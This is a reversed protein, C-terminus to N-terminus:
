NFISIDRLLFTEYPILTGGDFLVIFRFFGFACILLTVVQVTFRYKGQNIVCIYGLIIAYTLIFYDKVRTLIEFGSFLTMIPLLCLFLKLIFEVNENVEILKEYFVIVLLMILFYEFIHFLSLGSGSIGLFLSEAKSKSADSEFFNIIFSLPQLLPINLRSILLTPIFICNFIILLKKTLKVRAIPYLLFLILSANHFMLAVATLFYYKIFKRDQIYHMAIFFIAISISQRMSIFTNYFFIKYLFIIILLNFNLSYRNFGIYLCLYFVAAEILTFGYFNFGLTKIFSNWLLYGKEWGFTYYLEDLSSFNEFFGGLSPVNNYVLYYLEYDTGGLHYRTGSVFFLIVITTIALRNKDKLKLRNSILLLLACWM